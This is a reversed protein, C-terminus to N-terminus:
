GEPTLYELESSGKRLVARKICVGDLYFRYERDGNEHQRHATTHQLFVHSNSASSGVRVTVEGTQKVGYSKGSAYACSQVDNWIPYSRSM